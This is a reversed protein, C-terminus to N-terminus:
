IIRCYNTGMDLGFRLEIFLKGMIKCHKIWDKCLINNEEHLQRHLKEDMEFVQWRTRLGGYTLHRFLTTTQLYVLDRAYALRFDTVLGYKIDLLLLTDGLGLPYLYTKSVIFNVLISNFNIPKLHSLCFHLYMGSGVLPTFSRYCVINM